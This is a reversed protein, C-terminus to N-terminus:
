KKYKTTGRKLQRLGVNAISCMRLIEPRQTDRALEKMPNQQIKLHGKEAPFKFICLAKINIRKAARIPGEKSKM